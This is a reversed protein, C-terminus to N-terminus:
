PAKAYQVERAVWRAQTPSVHKLMKPLLVLMLVRNGQEDCRLDETIVVVGPAATDLSTRMDPACGDIVLIGRDRLWGRGPIFVEL